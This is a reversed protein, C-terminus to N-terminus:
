LTTYQLPSKEGHTTIELSHLSVTPSEQLMYGDIMNIYCPM